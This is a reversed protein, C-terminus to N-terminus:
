SKRRPATSSRNVSRSTSGSTSGGSTGISQSRTSGGSTGVSQSVTSGRTGIDQSVTGSPTIISQSRTSVSPTVIRTGVSSIIINQSVASRSSTGKSTDTKVQLGAVKFDVNHPKSLKNTNNAVLKVAEAPQTRVKKKTRGNDEEGQKGFTKFTLLGQEHLILVVYDVNSDARKKPDQWITYPFQTIVKEVEAFEKPNDAMEKLTSLPILKADRPMVHTKSKKFQLPFGKFTLKRSAFELTDEVQSFRFKPPPDLAVWQNYLDALQKLWKIYEMMTGQQTRYRKKLEEVTMVPSLKLATLADQRPKDPEIDDALKRIEKLWTKYKDMARLHDPNISVFGLIERATPVPDRTKWALLFFNEPDKLSNYEEVARRHGEYWNLYERRVDEDLETLFPASDKLHDINIM